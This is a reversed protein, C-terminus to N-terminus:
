QTWSVSVKVPLPGKVSLHAVFFFVSEHGVVQFSDGM